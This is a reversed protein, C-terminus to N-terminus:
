VVSKRDAMWGSAVGINEQDVFDPIIAQYPGIAVNMATQLLVYTTIFIPLTPALYFALLGMAGFCAGIGYFVVRKDGRLRLKDSYPGIALQVIAAALAGGGSILGFLGLSEAGTLQVYRGQLSLGLVAGWALQIGFWLVSIAFPSVRKTTHM